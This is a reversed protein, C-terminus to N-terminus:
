LKQVYKVVLTDNKSAEMAEGTIFSLLFTREERERLEQGTIGRNEYYKDLGILNLTADTEPTAAELMLVCLTVALALLELNISLDERLFKSVDLGDRYFGATMMERVLPVYDPSLNVLLSEDASFGEGEFVIFDVKTEMRNERDGTNQNLEDRWFVGYHKNTM